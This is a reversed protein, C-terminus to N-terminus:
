KKKSDEKWSGKKEKLVEQPDPDDQIGRSQKSLSQEKWDTAEPAMSSSSWSHLRRAKSDWSSRLGMPLVVFAPPAAHSVDPCSMAMHDGRAKLLVGLCSDDAKPCCTSHQQM